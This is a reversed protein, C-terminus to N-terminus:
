CDASECDPEVTAIVKGNKGYCCIKNNKRDLVKLCTDDPCKKCPQCEWCIKPHLNCGKPSYLELWRIRGAYGSPLPPLPVLPYPSTEVTTGKRGDTDLVINQVILGYPLGKIGIQNPNVSISQENEPLYQCPVVEATPCVADTKQFLIQNNADMVKFTCNGGPPNGCNDARGDARAITIAFPSNAVSMAGPNTSPPDLPRTISWVSYEVGFNNVAGVNTYYGQFDRFYGVKTLKGRAQFTRDLYGFNEGSSRTRLFGAIRINYLVNECQGGSFGAPNSLETTYRVGGIVNVWDGNPYKYRVYGAIPVNYTIKWTSNQSGLCDPILGTTGCNPM